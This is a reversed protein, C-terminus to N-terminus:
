KLQCIKKNKYQSVSDSIQILNICADARIINNKEIEGCFAFMKQHGPHEGTINLLAAANCLQADGGPHSSDHIGESWVM